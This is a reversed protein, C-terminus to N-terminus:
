KSIVNITKTLSIHDSATGVQLEFEGPEVVEKIDSNWLALEKIPLEFTVKETEGAKIFVKAFRKLEKVPMVVSSVKDRVYLQVVEKGDRPGTNRVSVEIKCTQDENFAASSVSMNQYEFTTYSLGSGFAWLPFPDSFVYDRGPKGPTGREKYIGKDSPYYNYYVPLHGVSKPFSVNLKGSPNVLGFLIEAIATGAQEGGYWQVIVADSNEKVWPMASPKGAVLVVVVPKGTRKVAKILEEQVGTLAIDSLDFSEGSIAEPVPKGPDGSMAGVFIVALDSKSAASVAEEIGDRNQSRIDCGKAYNIKVRGGAVAQIGQLPTIGYENEATWTYDGFRVKAANPGLVAISKLKTLDLPLINNSNKLLIASERAAELALARAEKTHLAKKLNEATAATRDDFLGMAFKATLIRSVCVDIEEEPLGGAKVLSDLKEYCTGSVEEDVGALVAQKAAEAKNAATCHFSRLMDVSGWDSSIYGKFGLEGRLLDTLIKRSAAIPVGDYSNYSNMISYPNTERIVAAFPKLYLNRLEREGGAVSALNLGGNPSGHAVFHKPTTIIQHDNFARVYAVGMRSVLYPDEGYTEEVRGWRLERALDLDPALVQDVGSAKSESAIVNAMRGILEANFTSGLAVAQPFITAGKQKLGHLSEAEIIVPIGLRNHRQIYSNLVASCEKLEEASLNGGVISGYSQDKLVAKMKMTDVIGKVTFQDFKLDQMQALKEKLTMRSLLDKVRAEVPKSSDKYVPENGYGICTLVSFLALLFSKRM